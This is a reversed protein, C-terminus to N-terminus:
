KGSRESNYDAEAEELYQTEAPILNIAVDSIGLDCLNGHMERM